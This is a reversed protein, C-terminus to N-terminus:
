RCVVLGGEEEERPFQRFWGCNWCLSVLGWVIHTIRTWRSRGPLLRVRSELLVVLSTVLDVIWVHDVCRGALSPPAAGGSRLQPIGSCPQLPSELGSSRAMKEDSSELPEPRTSM